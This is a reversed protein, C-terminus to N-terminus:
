ATIAFTMTAADIEIKPAVGSSVALGGGTRAGVFLLKKTGSVNACLSWHTITNSGGTCTPFQVVAGNSGVNAADNFNDASRAVSQAAYSTYDAEYLTAAGASPDATHLQWQLNGATASGLLGAADGINTIATNYLLLKLLDNSFTAGLAM